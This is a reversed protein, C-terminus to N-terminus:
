GKNSRFVIWKSFIYNGVVVLCLTLFKMITSHLGFVDVLLVLLLTELVAVILRAGCFKAFEVLLFKVAWNRSQFVFIKNTVYAFLIALANSVANAVATSLGLEIAIVFSGLGVVTTLVGFFLYSITERNVLKRFIKM